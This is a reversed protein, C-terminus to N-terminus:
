WMLLAWQTVTARSPVPAPAESSISAKKASTLKVSVCPGALFFFYDLVYSFGIPLFPSRGGITKKRRGQRCDPIYRNLWYKLNPNTSDNAPVFRHTKTAPACMPAGRGLM